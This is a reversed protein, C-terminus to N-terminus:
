APELELAKRDLERIFELLAARRDIRVGGSEARAM